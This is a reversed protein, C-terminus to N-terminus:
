ECIKSNSMEWKSGWIALGCRTSLTTGILLISPFFISWANKPVQVLPLNSSKLIAADAISPLIVLGKGRSGKTCFFDGPNDEQM